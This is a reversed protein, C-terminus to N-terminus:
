GLLESVAEEGERGEDSSAPWTRIERRAIVRLSGDPSPPNEEFIQESVALGNIILFDPIARTINVEPQNAEHRHHFRLAVGGYKSDEPDVQGAM